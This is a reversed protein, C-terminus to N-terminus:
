SESSRAAREVREKVGLLMERSMVFGIPEMLLPSFFLRDTVSNGHVTKGRAILRSHGDPEPQIHFAWINDTTPQSMDSPTGRLVLSQGPEVVAVHLPPSTPHLRIEEGVRVTQHEPLIEDANTIRCGFINELREFSYFGGRGQGVQVIWPWVHEPAAEISVAHTYDWSTIPILDEGPLSPDPEGPRAGWRRRWDRKWPAVVHGMVQLFAWATRGISRQTHRDHLVARQSTVKDRAVM